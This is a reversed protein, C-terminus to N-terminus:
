SHGTTTPSPLTTRNSPSRGRVEQLRRGARPLLNKEFRGDKLIAVLNEARQLVRIDAIPDGDIVLLDAIAGPELTGLEHGRGMLEAGNRTAWRLVDLAPIGVVNVYFDLEDGYDGHPLVSGGGFDDGLLLKVGARNARPLIKMMEAAESKLTRAYPTDYAEGMRYPWLMSPVLFAGKALFLEICEEDLGDGHDVVDIDLELATLMSRKNAIHARVKAGRQHATEIAAALEERTLEMELAQSPAGHGPTLFIKIIEAGRKVEERVGRRFDDAGDCRSIQPGSGPGWHWPYSLDQSHGTTSVDRSGVMLRPGRIIGEDLAARLAADIGYPAGASIASTFGAELAKELNSASRLTQLAPSAEMGIPVGTPTSIGYSAHFHCSFMGPMVSRGQLDIVRDGGLRAPSSGFRVSQIRDGAISIAANPRAGEDVDILTANTLTLTEMSDEM